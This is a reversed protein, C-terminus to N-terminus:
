PFYVNIDNIEITIDSMIYLFMGILILILLINYINVKALIINIVMDIILITKNILSLVNLFKKLLVTKANFFM